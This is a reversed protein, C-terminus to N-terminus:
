VSALKANKICENFEEETLLDDDEILLKKLTATRVEQVLTDRDVLGNFPDGDEFLIDIMFGAHAKSHKLTPIM